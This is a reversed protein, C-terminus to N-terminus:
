STTMGGLRVCLLARLSHTRNASGDQLAVQTSTDDRTFSRNAAFRDARSGLREASSMLSFPQAAFGPRTLRFCTKRSSGFPHRLVCVRFMGKPKGLAREAGVSDGGAPLTM